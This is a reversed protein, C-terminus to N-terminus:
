LQVTAIPRPPRDTFHLMLHLSGKRSRLTNCRSRKKSSLVSGISLLKLKENSNILGGRGYCCAFPARCVKDITSMTNADKHNKYVIRSRRSCWDLCFERLKNALSLRESRCSQTVPEISKPAWILASRICKKTLCSLATSKQATRGSIHRWPAGM